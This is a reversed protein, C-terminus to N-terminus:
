KLTLTGMGLLVSAMGGTDSAALIDAAVCEVALVVNSATTMTPALKTLASLLPGGYEGELKIALETADADLDRESPKDSVAPDWTYVDTLPETSDDPMRAELRLNMSDRSCGVTHEALLARASKPLTVHLYLERKKGYTTVVKGKGDKFVLPLPEPLVYTVPRAPTSPPAAATSDAGADGSARGESASDGTTPAAPDASPALGACGAALAVACAVFTSTSTALAYQTHNM